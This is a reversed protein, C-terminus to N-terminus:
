ANSYAKLKAQIEKVAKLETRKQNAKRPITASYMKINDLLGIEVEYLAAQVVTMEGPSLHISIPKNPNM